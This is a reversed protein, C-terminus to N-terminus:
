KKKGKNPPSAPPDDPSVKPGFLGDAKKEKKEFEKARYESEWNSKREQEEDFLKKLDKASMKAVKDWLAYGDFKKKFYDDGKLPKTEQQLLLRFAKFKLLLYYEQKACEQNASDCGYCVEFRRNTMEGMLQVFGDQVEQPFLDDDYRDMVYLIASFYGYLDWWKALLVLEPRRKFGSRQLGDAAMAYDANDAWWHATEYEADQSAAYANPEADYTLEYPESRLAGFSQEGEGLFWYTSGGRNTRRLLLGVLRDAQEVWGRAVAQVRETTYVNTREVSLREAFDHLKARFDQMLWFFRSLREENSLGM